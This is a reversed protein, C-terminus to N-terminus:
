ICECCHTIRYVVNVPLRAENAGALLGSAPKVAEHNSLIVVVRDCHDDNLIARLGVCAIELNCNPLQGLVSPTPRPVSSRPFGSLLARASASCSSLAHRAAWDFWVTPAPPPSYYRLKPHAWASKLPSKQLGAVSLDSFRVQGRPKPGPCDRGKEEEAARAAADSRTHYQDCSPETEARRARWVSAMNQQCRPLM